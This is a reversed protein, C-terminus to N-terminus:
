LDKIKAKIAYTGAIGGETIHVKIKNEDAVVEVAKPNDSHSNNKNLFDDDKGYQKYITEGDKQLVTGMVNATYGDEPSDFEAWIVEVVSGADCKVEFGQTEGEDITVDVWDAGLEISTYEVDVVGSGSSRLAFTGPKTPDNLVVKLLVEKELSLEISKKSDKYGNDKDEFYATTGDLMYASVKIDATYSKSEGHNEFEAWEAYLTTFTEEGIVKFWLEQNAVIEREFWNNDAQFVTPEVTKEDDNDSDCATLGVILLGLIFFAKMKIYKM